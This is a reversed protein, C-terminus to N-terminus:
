EYYFGANMYGNVIDKEEPFGGMNVSANACKVYGSLSSVTAVEFYPMGYSAQYALLNSEAPVYQHVFVHADTSLRVALPSSNGGNIMTHLEASKAAAVAGGGAVGMAGAVAGATGGTIATAAATILGGIATISGTAVGIGDYSAGSTPIKTACNGNFTSVWGGGYSVKYVIDGTLIDVYGDLQINKTYAMLDMDLPVWGVFPLYLEGMAYPAKELYTMDGGAGGSISSFDVSTTGSSFKYVRDVVKAVNNSFSMTERGIHVSHNGSGYGTMPLWICSVLSERGNTFQDVIEDWLTSTFLENAFAAMQSKTLCYYDLVGSEGNCTDSLVGLVYGGTTNFSVGADAFSLSVGTHTSTVLGTPQNRPDTITKKSSSSTYEILGNYSGVNTKYTGMPDEELHFVNRGAGVKTVDRVFYYRGFDSIYMYNANVPISASDIDPSMISTDDKLTVTADTGTTGPRKTSNKRKSFGTWYTVNM